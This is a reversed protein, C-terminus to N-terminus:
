DSREKKLAKRMNKEEGENKMWSSATVEVVGPPSEMTSSPCLAGGVVSTLSSEADFLEEVELEEACFVESEFGEM